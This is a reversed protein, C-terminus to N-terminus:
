RNLGDAIIEVADYDVITNATGASKALGVAPSVRNSTPINTSATCANAGNVTFTALNAAPNVVVRLDYWTTAAVTVGTDCTSGAESGANRCVGQWKGTNITHSYKLYCGNAPAMTATQDQFGNYSTYANTGNSLASMRMQTTLSWAASGFLVAHNTDFTSAMGFLATANTGTNMRIVGPHNLEGMLYSYGANTGSASTGTTLVPDIPTGNGMVIISTFDNRHEFRTRGKPMCDKWRGAEYCRFRALNSNYYMSGDVGNSPDGSTDKYDLVLLAPNADPSVDGGGVKIALNSTTDAVLLATGANNKIQFATTSDSAPQQLFSGTFTNNGTFTQNAGLQALAAGDIGDITDTNMVYPSSGLPSRPTMPGESWTACSVTPCTATLPDPLEVELYLPYQTTPGLPSVDGLQVNFTGNTVQVRNGAERTESWVTSGGTPADVVSFRMNYLGNAMNSGTSNTLQGQFNLRYPVTQVAHTPTVIFLVSLLFTAIVGRRLLSLKGSRIWKMNEM